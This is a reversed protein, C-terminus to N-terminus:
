DPKTIQEISGDGHRVLMQDALYADTIDQPLFVEQFTHSDPMFTLFRGDEIRVVGHYVDQVNKLLRKMALRSGNEVEEITYLDREKM